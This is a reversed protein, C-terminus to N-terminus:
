KGRSDPVTQWKSVCEEQCVAKCHSGCAALPSSLMRWVHSEVPDLPRHVCTSFWSVPMTKEEYQEDPNILYWWFAFSSVQCYPRYSRAWGQAVNNKKSAQGLRDAGSLCLTTLISRTFFPNHFLFILLIKVMHIIVANASVFFFFFTIQPRFFMKINLVVSALLFTTKFDFSFFIWSMPRDSYLWM